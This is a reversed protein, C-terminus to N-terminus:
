NLTIYNLNRVWRAPRKDESVILQFPGSKGLPQGDRADAVLVQGNHFSPDVEALSLVVSYGGSGSAFLYSTLAERRLKNGLPASVMALLTALPVGSYSEDAGTDGNHVTVTVHTLVRFDTPSLVVPTNFPYARVVLSDVPYSISPGSYTGIRLVVSCLQTANAEGNPKSVHIDESWNKFGPASVLLSYMGPKLNLSLKGEEDAELKAPVPDPAPVLRIQAHPIPGGSQDDVQITIPKTTAQQSLAASPVLLTIALLTIGYIQLRM